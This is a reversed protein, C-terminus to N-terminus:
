LTVDKRVLYRNRFGRGMISFLKKNCKTIRQEVNREETKRIDQM